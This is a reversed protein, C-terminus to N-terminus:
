VAVIGLAEDVTPYSQGDDPRWPNTFDTEHSTTSLMVRRSATQEVLWDPASESLDVEGLTVRIVASYGLKMHPCHALAIKACPEHMAANDVIDNEPGLAICATTDLALGCVACLSERQCKGLREWDPRGHHKEDGSYPVPMKDLMPRPLGPVAVQEATPHESMEGTVKGM